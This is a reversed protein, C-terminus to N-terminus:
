RTDEFAGGKFFLCLFSLNPLILKRGTLFIWKLTVITFVLLSEVGVLFTDKHKKRTNTHELWKQFYQYLYTM